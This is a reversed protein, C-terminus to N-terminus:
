VRPNWLQIISTATTGTSYVRTVNRLPLLEGAPVAAITVTDDGIDVKVAGTGGVWLSDCPNTLDNTDHPTVAAARSFSQSEKFRNSM